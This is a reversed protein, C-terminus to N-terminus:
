WGMPTWHLPMQVCPLYVRWGVWARDAWRSVSAPSFSFLIAESLSFNSGVRSLIISTNWFNFLYHLWVAELAMIGERYQVPFGASEWCLSPDWLPAGWEDLSGSYGLPFIWARCVNPLSFLSSNLKYMKYLLLWFTPAVWIGRWLYISLCFIIYIYIYM